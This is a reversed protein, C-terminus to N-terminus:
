NDRMNLHKEVIACAEVDTPDRRCAEAANFVMQTFAALQADEDNNHDVPRFGDEETCGGEKGSCKKQADLVDSATGEGDFMRVATGPWDSSHMRDGLGPTVVVSRQGGLHLWAFIAAAVVAAISGALVRRGLM